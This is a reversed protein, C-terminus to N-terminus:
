VAAEMGPSAALMEELIEATRETASKPLAAGLRERIERYDEAMKARVPEDDLLQAVAKAIKEPTCDLGLLEPVAQRQLIMNPMAIFPINKKWMWLLLWEIRGIWRCM